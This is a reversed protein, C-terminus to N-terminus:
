EVCIKDQIKSYTSEKIGEVEMIQEKSTFCGILTRYNIIADAKVDGIGPLSCLETKNATNINVIGDKTASEDKQINENVESDQLLMGYQKEEVDSEEMTNVEDLTPIVIKAADSIMQAQNIYDRAAEDVFGGAEEVAEYVRSGAPLEYVGPNMVAGCVHVWYTSPAEPQVVSETEAQPQSDVQLETEQVSETESQNEEELPLLMLQEEKKTCGGFIIASWLVGFLVIVFKQMKKVYFNSNKETM